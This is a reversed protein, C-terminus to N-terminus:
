PVLTGKKIIGIQMVKETGKANFYVM